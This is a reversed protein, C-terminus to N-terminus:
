RMLSSSHNESVRDALARNCCGIKRDLVGPEPPQRPSRPNASVAVEGSSLNNANLRAGSDAPCTPSVARRHIRVLDVLADDLYNKIIYVIEPVGLPTGRVAGVIASSGAARDVRFVQTCADDVGCAIARRLRITSAAATPRELWCIAASRPIGSTV